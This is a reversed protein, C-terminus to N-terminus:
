THVPLLGYEETLFANAKMTLGVREVVLLDELAFESYFLLSGNACRGISECAKKTAPATPEGTSRDLKLFTGAVLRHADADQKLVAAIKELQIVPVEVPLGDLGITKM